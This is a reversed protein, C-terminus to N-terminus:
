STGLAVFGTILAAAILAFGLPKTIVRGIEPLKELAMLVTAIGMWILNMVGGVFGLAMLAWCCGLCVLGLRAGMLFAGKAGSQWYQMFFSLPERCQTLCASKLPSFQYLGAGALLTSTLWLSRSAGGEGLLDAQALVLQAGAALASFGIWILLYAVLLSNFTRVADADRKTLDHYTKLTPAFTPAMMAASMLAWMLFVTGYGSQATSPACLTAWFDAGYLRAFELETASPQMAFLATWAVLILGFFGLWPAASGYRMVLNRLPFM